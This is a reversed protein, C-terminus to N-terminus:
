PRMGTLNTIVAINKLRIEEAIKHALDQEAEPLQHCTDIARHLGELVARAVTDEIIVAVKEAQVKSLPKDLVKSVSQSAEAAITNLRELKKLKRM